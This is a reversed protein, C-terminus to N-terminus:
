KWINFRDQIDSIFGVQDHCMNRKMFQQIQNALIKLEHVTDTLLKRKKHQWTKTDM